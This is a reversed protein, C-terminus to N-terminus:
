TKPQNERLTSLYARSLEKVADYLRAIERPREIETPDATIGRAASEALKRVAEVADSYRRATGAALALALGTCLLIVAVTGVTLMRQWGRLADDIVGLAPIREHIAAVPQQLVVIWDFGSFRSAIPAYTDPGGTRAYGSLWNGDVVFGAPEASAAARLAPEDQGTLVVDPNMIRERDHGSDTEAILAGEGTAVLVRGNPIAEATRDAMKQIPEIALVTKMVGVPYRTAPDDLRVSIDVSWTGASDDYEVEGVAMGQNWANQWWGEDSQVFDSTPNTLAVNFGNRDTFFIEAFYPSTSVARRLYADAEPSIGLSKADRFRDEITAVDAETFGEAVHKEHAAGAANVIVPAEAWSIAEMVREMFFSDILRATSRAQGTLEGRAINEVITGRSRAFDAEIGDLLTGLVWAAIGGLLAVPFVAGLLARSLLQTQFNNKPGPRASYSQEQTSM